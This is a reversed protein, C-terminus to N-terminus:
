IEVDDVYWGGAQRVLSLQLNHTRREPEHDQRTVTVIVLSLYTRTTPSSPDIEDLSAIHVTDVERDAIREATSAGAGSAQGPRADFRATDWPRARARVAAAPSPLDDFRWSLYADLFNRAVTAPDQNALPAAPASPLPPVLTALTTTQEARSTTTTSPMSTTTSSSTTSVPGDGPGGVSATNGGSLLYGVGAGLAACVAVVAAIVPGRRALVDAVM